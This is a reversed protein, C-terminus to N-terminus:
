AHIALGAAALAAEQLIEALTPHAHSTVGLEEDTYEYALAAGAEGLMTTAEVGFIHVGLIEGYRADSIVKALGETHGM